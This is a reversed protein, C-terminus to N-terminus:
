NLSITKEEFIFSGDNAIGEIFLTIPVEPQAIKISINGNSDTVLEPKWDITGYGKYFGDNYYKYKPVYFKKKASFTLPLTYKQATERNVSKYASGMLTYIKIIGQNGRIGAGFGSPDLEVYDITSLPMRYFMSTDMIQMGDLFIIAGSNIRDPTNTSAGQRTGGNRPFTATFSQPTESVRVNATLLYDSLTFFNLRDLQTPIKIRGYKHKSLEKTRMRIRDLETTVVVEELQQVNNLNEFLVKNNLGAFTAYKAKPKLIRKNTYLVPIENPYSQLYLKAPSLLDKAKVESLFM